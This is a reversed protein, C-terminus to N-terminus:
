ACYVVKCAIGSYGYSSPCCQHYEGNCCRAGFPFDDYCPACNPCEMRSCDCTTGKIRTRCQDASLSSGLVASLNEAPPLIFFCATEDVQERRVGPLDGILNLFGGAVSPQALGLVMFATDNVQVLEYPTSTQAVGRGALLMLAVLLWPIEWIKVLSGEM